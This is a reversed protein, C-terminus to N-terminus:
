IEESSSSCHSVRLQRLQYFATDSVEIFNIVETLAWTLSNLGDDEM